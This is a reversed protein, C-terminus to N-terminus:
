IIYIPYNQLFVIQIGHILMIIQIIFIIITLHWISMYTLIFSRLVVLFVLLGIVLMAGLAIMELVKFQSTQFRGTIMVVDILMQVM